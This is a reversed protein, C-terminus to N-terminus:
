KEFTNIAVAILYIEWYINVGAILVHDEVGFIICVPDFSVLVWV